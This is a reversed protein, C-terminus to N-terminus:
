RRAFLLDRPGRWGKHGRWILKSQLRWRDGGLLLRCSDGRRPNGHDNLTRDDFPPTRNISRGGGRMNQRLIHASHM